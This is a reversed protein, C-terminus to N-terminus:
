NNANFMTTIDTETAETLDTIDALVHNHASPAFTSPKGTIETWSHTPKAHVHDERAYRASTGVAATGLAKPAVTAPAPIDPFDTIDSKVHTHTANAKGSWTSKETDTVFRHTADPTVETAPINVGKKRFDNTVWTETAYGTLDVETTGIFEFKGEILIYEDYTNKASTSASPAFYIVNQKASAVAPLSEVKEISVSKLGETLNKVWAKILQDYNGLREVSVFKKAM